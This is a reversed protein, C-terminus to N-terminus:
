YCYYQIYVDESARGTESNVLLVYYTDLVNFNTIGSNAIHAPLVLVTEGSGSGSFNWFFSGNSTISFYQGATVGTQAFFTNYDTKTPPPVTFNFSKKVLIDTRPSQQQAAVSFSVRSASTCNPSGVAANFLLTGGAPLTYHVNYANYTLATGSGFIPLQPCSGFNFGTTATSYHSGSVPDLIRLSIVYGGPPEKGSFIYHIMHFAYQVANISFSDGPVMQFTTGPAVLSILSQDPLTLWAKGELTIQHGCVPNTVDFTVNVIDGPIFYSVPVVGLYCIGHPSGSVSINVSPQCADISLDLRTVDLLNGQTDKLNYSIGLDALGIEIELHEGPRFAANIFSESPHWIVKTDNEAYEIWGCVNWQCSFGGEGLDIIRLYQEYARDVPNNFKLYIGRDLLDPVSVTQGNIPSSDILVFAADGAAETQASIVISIALAFSILLRNM